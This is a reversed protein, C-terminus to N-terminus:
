TATGKTIAAFPLWGIVKGEGTGFCDQSWNWGAIIWEDDGMNQLDNFGITWSQNDDTLPMWNEVGEYDVLLRLMTGDKPATEIPRPNGDDERATALAATLRAIEAQAEKTKAASDKAMRAWLRWLNGNTTLGNSIEIGDIAAQLEDREATLKSTPPDIRFAAVNPWFISGEEAVTTWTDDFGGVIELRTGLPVPCDAGGNWIFWKGRTYHTVLEARQEPTMPPTPTDTM